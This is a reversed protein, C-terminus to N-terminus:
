STACKLKVIAEALVVQGGVRRRALFGMIGYEAYKQDLRQISLNVRDVILYARSFDGFLVPYTNTDPDDLDPCLTYPYGCITAPTADAMAPQWLFIGSVPDKFTRIKWLTTRNLIYRANRLYGSKISFPLKIITEPTIDDADESNVTAINTNTLLGEPQNSGTGSVFATGELKAFQEAFEQALEQEMPFASDELQKLSVKALYGMEYPTLKELGYTLGTVETREATESIWYPTGSATRKPVELSERSIEVVRSIERVPSYETIGKIVEAAFQAPALYGAAPDDSVRLLKFEDPALAAQGKRLFQGFAKLERSQEERNLAFLTPTKIRALETEIEDMRTDMDNILRHVGSNLAEVKTEINDM